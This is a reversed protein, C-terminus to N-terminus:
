PIYTKIQQMAIQKQERDLFGWLNGTINKERIPIVEQNNDPCVSIFWWIQLWQTTRNIIM